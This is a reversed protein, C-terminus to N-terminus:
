RECFWREWACVGGVTQCVAGDCVGGNSVRGIGGGDRQRAQSAGQAVTVEAEEPGAVKKRVDAGPHL